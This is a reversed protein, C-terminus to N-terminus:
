DSTQKTVSKDIHFASSFSTEATPNIVLHLLTPYLRLKTITKAWKGVAFTSPKFLNESCHIRSISIQRMKGGVFFCFFVLSFWVRFPLAMKSENRGREAFSFLVSVRVFSLLSTAWRVENGKSLIKLVLKSSQWPQEGMNGKMDCAVSTTKWLVNVRTNTTFPLGALLDCEQTSCFSHFIM